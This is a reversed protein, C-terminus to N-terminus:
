PQSEEFTTYIMCSASGSMKSNLNKSSFGIKYTGADWERTSYIYGSTHAKVTFVTGSADVQIDYDGTNNVLMKWYKYDGHLVLDQHETYGSLTAQFANTGVCPEVPNTVEVYACGPNAPENNAALVSVSLVSILCFCLVIAILSRKKM